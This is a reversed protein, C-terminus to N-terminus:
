IDFSLIYHIPFIHQYSPIVIASIDFACKFSDIDQTDGIQKFVQQVLVNWYLKM